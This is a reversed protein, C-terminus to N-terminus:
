GVVRVIARPRVDRVRVEGGVLVIRPHRSLKDPRSEVVESFRGRVVGVRPRVVRRNEADDVERGNRFVTEPEVAALPSFVRRSEMKDRVPCPRSMFSLIDRNHCVTRKVLCFEEHVTDALSNRDLGLRGSDGGVRCMRSRYRRVSFQHATEPEDPRVNNVLATFQLHHRVVRIAFRCRFLNDACCALWVRQFEGGVGSRLRHVAASERCGIGRLCRNELGVALLQAVKIDANNVALTIRHRCVAPENFHVDAACARELGNGVSIRGAKLREVERLHM